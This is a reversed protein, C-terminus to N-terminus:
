GKKGFLIYSMIMLAVVAILITTVISNDFVATLVPAIVQPDYEQPIANSIINTVNSIEPPNDYQELIDRYNDLADKVDNFRADLENMVIQDDETSYMIIEQNQVLTNNLQKIENVSDLIEGQNTAIGGLDSAADEIAQKLDDVKGAIEIVQQEISVLAESTAHVYIGSFGFILYRWYDTSSGYSNTNFTIRLYDIPDTVSIQYINGYYTTTNTSSTTTPIKVQSLYVDGIDTREVPTAISDKVSYVQINTFQSSFYNQNPSNAGLVFEITLSDFGSLFFPLNITVDSRTVATTNYKNGRVFYNVGSTSDTFNAYAWNAVQSFSLTGTANTNGLVIRQQTEDFNDEIIAAYIPSVMFVSLLLFTLIGILIKKTPKM